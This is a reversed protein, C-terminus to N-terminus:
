AVILRIKRLNPPVLYISLRAHFVDCTPFPLLKLRLRTYPPNNLQRTIKAHTCVYIKRTFKLWNIDRTCTFTSRPEGKVNARPREHMKRAYVRLFKIRWLPFRGKNVWDM